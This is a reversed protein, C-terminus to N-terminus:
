RGNPIRDCSKIGAAVTATGAPNTQVGVKFMMAVAYHLKQIQGDARAQYDGRDSAEIFPIPMRMRTKNSGARQDMDFSDSVRRWHTPGGQGCACGLQLTQSHKVQGSYQSTRDAISRQGYM